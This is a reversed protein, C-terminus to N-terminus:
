LTTSQPGTVEGIKTLALNVGSVVLAGLFASLFNDVRFDVGLGQAMWSALWLMAGNIVLTFLGLTLLQLLCTALFALPRIFANVLGFVFPALVLAGVGELHIGPIAWAATYLAVATFLLRLVLRWAM